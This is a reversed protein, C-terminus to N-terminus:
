ILILAISTRAEKTFNHVIMFYIFNKFSIIIIFVFFLIAKAAHLPILGYPKIERIVDASMTASVSLVMDM